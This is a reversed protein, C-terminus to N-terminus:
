ETRLSKIPNTWAAQIAQVSVTALAIGLVLIISVAFMWWSITIKFVFDQLWNNMFYWSLPAAIVFALIVLWLFDM